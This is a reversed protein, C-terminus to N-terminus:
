RQHSGIEKIRLVNITMKNHKIKDVKGRLIAM